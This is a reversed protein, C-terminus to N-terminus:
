SIERDWLYVVIAKYCQQHSKSTVCQQLLVSLYLNHLFIVTWSGIKKYLWFMKKKTYLM